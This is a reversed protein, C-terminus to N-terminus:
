NNLNNYNITINLNLNNSILDNVYTNVNITLAHKSEDKIFKTIEIKNVIAFSGVINQLITDITREMQGDFKLSLYSWKNKQLERAIRGATFRMWLTMEYKDGNQYKKYYYEQNNCVLYNSKYKQLKIEINETEYPNQTPQNYSIVKSSVTYYNTLLGELFAYYGPRASGYVTMGRYFYILYNYTDDTYNLYYENGNIFQNLVSRGQATGTIDYGYQGTVKYYYETESTNFRYITYQRNIFVSVNGEENTELYTKESEGEVTCIYYTMPDFPVVEKNENTIVYNGTGWKYITNENYTYDPTPPTSLKIMPYEKQTYERYDFGLEEANIDSNQILFQCSFESAYQLFTQYIPLFTVDNREGADLNTYSKVNPVLFFDPFVNDVDLDFIRKLGEKWMETTYTEREGGRLYYTGALLNSNYLNCYVLKSSNMIQYDIREEGFVGSTWGEYVESYDYRSLTLRYYNEDLEEIEVKINGEIDYDKIGGITRSWFEIGKVNKISNFLICENAIRNVEFTIGPITTFETMPVQYVSQTSSSDTKYIDKLTRGSVTNYIGYEDLLKHSIFQLAQTISLGPDVEIWTDVGGRYEISRNRAFKSILEERIATKMTGSYILVGGMTMKSTQYSKIPVPLIFFRYDEPDNSNIDSNSPLSTPFSISYVLTQNEKTIEERNIVVDGDSIANYGEWKKGENSYIGLETEGTMYEPCSYPIFSPELLNERSILLTSRHNLSKSTNELNQPLLSAKVFQDDYWVYPESEGGDVRSIVNIKIDDRTKITTMNPFDIETIYTIEAGMKYEQYGFQSEIIEGSEIEYGSGSFTLGDTKLCEMVNENNIQITIITKEPNIIYNLNKTEGQEQYTIIIEPESESNPIINVRIMDGLELYGNFISGLVTYPLTISTSDPFISKEFYKLEGDTKEENTWVWRIYTYDEATGIRYKLKDNIKCETIYDIFQNPIELSESIYYVQGNLYTVNENNYTVNFAGPYMVPVYSDYDIQDEYSSESKTSIPRYLFLTLGRNLLEVMYDREKFDQTFWIDLENVTRVLVPSEYSLGSDVLESVIMFDNTNAVSNIATKGLKIYM